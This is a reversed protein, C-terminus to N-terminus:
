CAGEVLRMDNTFHWIIDSYNESTGEVCFYTQMTPTPLPEEMVGGNGPAAWYDWFSQIPFSGGRRKYTDVMDLYFDRVVETANPNYQQDHGVYSNAYDVLAAETVPTNWQQTQWAEIQMRNYNWVDCRVVYDMTQGGNNQGQGQGAAIQEDCIDRLLVGKQVPTLYNYHPETESVSLEITNGNTATITAPLSTPYEGVDRYYLQVGTMAGDLDSQVTREVAQRQVGTYGVYSVLALISIVTIVIILEVITFGNPHKFRMHKCYLPYALFHFIRGRAPAAGGTRHPRRQVPLIM